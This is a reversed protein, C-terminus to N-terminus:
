VYNKKWETDCRKFIVRNTMIELVPSKKISLSQMASQCEM